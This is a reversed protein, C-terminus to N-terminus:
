QLSPFCFIQINQKEASFNLTLM